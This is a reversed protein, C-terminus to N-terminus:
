RRAAGLSAMAADREDVLLSGIFADSKQFASWAGAGSGVGLPKMLSQRRLEVTPVRAAGAVALVAGEAVSRKRDSDGDAIRVAVGTAGSETLAESASMAYWAARDGPDSNM